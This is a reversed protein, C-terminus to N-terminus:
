PESRGYVVEDVSESDHIEGELAGAFSMWPQESDELALEHALGRRVLEAFSIGQRQAVRRARQYTESDVSIQTRIM